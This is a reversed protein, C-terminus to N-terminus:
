RAGGTAALAESLTPHIDFLRRMGAIDITRLVQPQSAVLTLSGRAAEVQRQRGTLVGLVTSDIFTAESLDVVLDTVGLEILQVLLDRVAPAAQVDLEGSAAVVHAHGDTAPSWHRLEYASTSRAVPSM